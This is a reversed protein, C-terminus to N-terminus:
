AKFKDRCETSCFYYVQGNITKHLASSPALFTGCVPDKKLAETVPLTGPRPGSRPASGTGPPQSSQQSSQQSSAAGFFDAIGKLVIGIAARLVGFILVAAFLWLIWETV